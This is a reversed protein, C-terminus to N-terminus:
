GCFEKIFKVFINKGNILQAVPVSENIGHINDEIAFPTLGVGKIGLAQYFRLDSSAEFFHPKVKLNFSKIAKSLAKYLDTEYDDIEPEEDAQALIKYSLNNYSKLLKDLINIIEQKKMAPPVRIDITAEAIEPVMNLSVKGTDDKVGSTLSTINCSLLEGAQKNSIQNQQQVHIELIKNLFSIIDHSANNCMLHSGHALEGKATIRIQIPKREAVKIDLFDSSGSAHGEDVVYGINLKKFADTNVFEKTGKFGGVEEDPVVFIYISRKPNFGQEKLEKLAFYHVAGIGKMDQAGRGIINGNHIEAAFPPAIWGNDKAPVVDMHHNFAIAPLTKDSGELKIILAKNQSPLIIEQYIFSDKEAQNKLFSIANGYDPHPHSTNIRIYDQLFNVLNNNLDSNKKNKILLFSIGMAAALILILLILKSLRSM